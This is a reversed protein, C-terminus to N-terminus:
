IIQPYKWNDYGSDHPNVQKKILLELVISGCNLLEDRLRPSNLEAVLALYNLNNNQDTSLENQQSLLIAAKFNFPM